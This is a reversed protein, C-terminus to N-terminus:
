STIQITQQIQWQGNIFSLIVTTGDTLLCSYRIIEHSQADVEHWIRIIKRIYKTNTNNLRFSIPAMFNGRYDVRVCFDNNM